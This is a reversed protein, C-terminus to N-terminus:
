EWTFRGQNTEKPKINENSLVNAFQRRTVSIRKEDKLKEYIATVSHGQDILAQIDKKLALVM